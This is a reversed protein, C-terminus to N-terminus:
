DQRKKLVWEFRHCVNDDDNDDDVDDDNYDNVNNYNSEPSLGEEKEIGVRVQVFMTVMDM